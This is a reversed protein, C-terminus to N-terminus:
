GVLVIIVIKESIATKETERKVRCGKSLFNMERSWDSSVLPLIESQQRGRLQDTDNHM